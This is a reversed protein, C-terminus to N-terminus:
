KMLLTTFFTSQISPQMAFLESSNRLFEYGNCNLVNARVNLNSNMQSLASSIMTSPLLPVVGSYTTNSNLFHQKKFHQMHAVSHPLLLLTSYMVYQLTTTFLTLILNAISISTNGIHEAPKTSLHQM